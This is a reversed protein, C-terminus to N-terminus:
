LIQTARPLPEFQYTGEPLRVPFGILPANLRKTEFGGPFIVMVSAKLRLDIIRNWTNSM